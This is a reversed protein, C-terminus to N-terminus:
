NRSVKGMADVISTVKGDRLEVQVAGERGLYCLSKTLPGTTIELSAPGFRRVLEDYNTGTEILMPSEYHVVPPTVVPAAARAVQAGRGRAPPAAPRLDVTNLSKQLTKELNGIAGALGQMPATSTVAKGTLLTNEVMAQASAAGQSVALLPLISLFL